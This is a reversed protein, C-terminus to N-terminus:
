SRKGTGGPQDLLAQLWGVLRAAAAQQEEVPKTAPRTPSGLAVGNFGLILEVKDVPLGPHEVKQKKPLLDRLTDDMPITIHIGTGSVSLETEAGLEEIQEQVWPHIAGDEIVDDFDIVLFDHLPIVGVYRGARNAWAQGQDFTGWTRPDSVDGVRGTRPDFPVKEGSSVQLFGVFRNQDRLTDVAIHTGV